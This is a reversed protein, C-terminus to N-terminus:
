RKFTYMQALQILQDTTYVSLVETIKQYVAGGSPYATLQEFAATKLATMLEVPWGLGRMGKIIDTANDILFLTVLNADPEDALFSDRKTQEEVHFNLSADFTGLGPCDVVVFPIHEVVAVGVSIQGTRFAKIESSSPRGLAIIVNISAGALALAAGDHRHYDIPFKQGVALQVLGM